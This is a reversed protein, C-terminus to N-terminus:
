SQLLLLPNLFFQPPTISVFHLNQVDPPVLIIDATIRIDTRAAAARHDKKFGRM